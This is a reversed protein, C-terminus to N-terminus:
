KSESSNVGIKYLVSVLMCIIQLSILMIVMKLNFLM